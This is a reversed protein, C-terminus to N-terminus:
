KIEPVKVQSNLKRAEALAEDAQAQDNQKMALRYRLLHIESMDAAEQSLESIGSAAEDFRELGIWAQIRGVRAAELQDPNLGGSLAAAFKTEATQFDGGALAEKAADLEAQASQVTTPRVQSRDCGCISLGASVVIILTALCSFRM